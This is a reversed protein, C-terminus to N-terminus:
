FFFDLNEPTKLLHSISVHAMFRNVKKIFNNESMVLFTLCFKFIKLVFLAKFIFYFYDKTM